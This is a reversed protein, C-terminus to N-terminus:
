LPISRRGLAQAGRESSPNWSFMAAHLRSAGAHARAGACAVEQVRLVGAEVRHDAALCCTAAREGSCSNQRRKRLSLTASTASPKM